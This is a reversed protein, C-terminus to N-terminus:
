TNTHNRLSQLPTQLVLVIEISSLVYATKVATVNTSIACFCDILTLATPVEACIFAAINNYKHYNHEHRMQQLVFIGGESLFTRSSCYLIAIKIYKLEKKKQLV